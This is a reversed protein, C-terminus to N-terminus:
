APPTGPPTGMHQKFLIGVVIVCVCYRDGADTSHDDGIVIRSVLGILCTLNIYHVMKGRFLDRLDYRFIGVHDDAGVGAALEDIEIHVLRGKVVHM